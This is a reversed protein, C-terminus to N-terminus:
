NLEIKVEVNGGLGLEVIKQLTSLKAEKVDNEIKSIYSKTTGAKDALEQQTLGSKERAQKLLVGLKFDNYGGELEDRQKTGPKGYYKDKLENLTKSNTKIVKTNM